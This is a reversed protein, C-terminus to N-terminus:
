RIGPRRVVLSPHDFTPAEVKPEVKSEESPMAAPEWSVNKTMRGVAQIESPLVMCNFCGSQYFEIVAREELQGKADLRQAFVHHGDPYDNNPNLSGRSGGDLRTKTVLYRGKIQGSEFRQSGGKGDLIERVEGVSVTTKALSTMPADLRNSYVFREPIMVSVKMGDRIEIIDGEALYKPEQKSM